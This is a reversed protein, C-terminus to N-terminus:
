FYEKRFEVTELKGDNAQLEGKVQNVLAGDLDVDTLVKNHDQNPDAYAVAKLWKRDVSPGATGAHTVQIVAGPPIGFANNRVAVRFTDSYWQPDRSNLKDLDERNAAQVWLPYTKKGWQMQVQCALPNYEWEADADALDQFVLPKPEEPTNAPDPNQNQDTM